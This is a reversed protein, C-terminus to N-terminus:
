VSKVENDQINMKKLEKKYLGIDYFLEKIEPMDKCANFGMFFRKYIENIEEKTYKSIDHPMYLDRATYIHSLEKYSPASLTVDRMRKEVEVLM